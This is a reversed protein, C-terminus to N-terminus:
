KKNKIAVTSLILKYLKIEITVKLVYENESKTSVFRSYMYVYMYVYM